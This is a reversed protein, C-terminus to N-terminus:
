RTPAAPGGRAPFHALAEAVENWSAARLRKSVSQFSVRTRRAIEHLGEGELRGAIAEWQPRTWRATIVDLLALVSAAPADFDPDGSEWGTRAVGGRASVAELANRARHFAIGESAFPGKRSMLAIPGTGIGVRLEVREALAARIQARLHLVLDLMPADPRLVAELEDGRQLEPALRFAEAWRSRTRGAARRLVGDLVRRRGPPIQRSAAVDAILVHWVPEAAM